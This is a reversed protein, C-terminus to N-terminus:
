MTSARLFVPCQRPTMEASVTSYIASTEADAQWALWAKPSTDSSAPGLHYNFLTKQPYDSKEAISYGKANLAEPLKAPASRKM